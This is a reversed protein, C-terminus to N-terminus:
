KLTGDEKNHTRMHDRLTQRRAYAKQCVECQFLKEGVHRVMHKQVQTKSFFKSDCMTCSYNRERVHVEKLHVTMKSSIQFGKACVPCKYEPIKVGHVLNHHLKRQRYNPFAEPCYHCKLLKPKNHVTSIHHNRQTLSDFAGSCLGCHFKSGHSLSHCRLRESSLFSKGCLECVYGGFHVNMHQNLKVFYQFTEECIACQYMNEVLLRYPILGNAGENFVRNHVAKSHDILANLDTITHGCLKCEIFTVDVKVKDDRRLLFVASKINPKMHETVTHQRVEEM